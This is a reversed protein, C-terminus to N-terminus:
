LRKQASVQCCYGACFGRGRCLPYQGALFIRFTTGKGLESQVDLHGGTQQVIGYVTALGLGTGKGVDKTTFFPEFIKAKVEDTMGTGTDKVSIVVFDDGAIGRLAALLSTDTIAERPMLASRVEISGGGQAAMADRANVCLNMLITDIQSKDAMVM